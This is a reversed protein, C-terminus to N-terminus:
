LEADPRQAGDGTEPKSFRRIPREELNDHGLALSEYGRYMAATRCRKYNQRGDKPVSLNRYSGDVEDFFGRARHIYKCYMYIIIFIHSSNSDAYQTGLIYCKRAVGVDM